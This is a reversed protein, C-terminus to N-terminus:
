LDIIKMSDFFVDKKKIKQEITTIPREYSKCSRLKKLYIESKNVRMQIRMQAMLKKRDDQTM